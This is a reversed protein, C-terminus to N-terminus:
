PYRVVIGKLKVAKVLEDRVTEARSHLLEPGVLVRYHWQGDVQSKLVFAAYGKKRIRDRLTVANKQQSLSALQVAWSAASPGGSVTGSLEDDPRRIEGIRQEVTADSEQQPPAKATPEAAAPQTSTTQASSPLPKNNTRGLGVPTREDLKGSKMPPLPDFELVETHFNDPRQPIIRDNHNLRDQRLDLFEPLIIAALAVLVIAGILRQRGSSLTQQGDEKRM